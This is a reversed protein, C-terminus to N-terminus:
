LSMVVARQAHRLTAGDVRGVVELLRDLPLTTLFDVAFREDTGPPWPSQGHHADALYIEGATPTM